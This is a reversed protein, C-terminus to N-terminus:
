VRERCSARGIQTGLYALWRELGRRELAAASQMAKDAAAPGGAALELGAAAIAAAVSRSRGLEDVAAAVNREALCAGLRQAPARLDGDRSRYFLCREVIIAVTIVLCAGLLWLVWAAGSRLLLQKVADVTNM